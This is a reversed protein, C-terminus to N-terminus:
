IDGGPRYRRFAIVNGIMPLYRFILFFLLPGIALSYLQWDRRLARRWTRRAPGPRSPSPPRAPDTNQAGSPVTLTDSASMGSGGWGAYQGCHVDRRFYCTNRYM